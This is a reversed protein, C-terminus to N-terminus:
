LLAAVPRRQRRGRRGRRLRLDSRSGLCLLYQAGSNGYINKAVKFWVSYTYNKPQYLAAPTGFTVYDHHRRLAAGGGTYGGVWRPDRGPSGHYGHGSWDTSTRAPGKMSRGGPSFIPTPSPSTPCPGSAGSRRREPTGTPPFEDVRWYYTTDAKLLGPDYKADTVMLGGTAANGVAEFSEGFYVTHFVGGRREALDLDQNLDVYQVGDAPSPSWAIVPQVSFSWVDGELSQRSQAPNVEDVRWYYTKGPVLGAPIPAARPASRCAITPRPASSCPRADATTAAVAPTRASTCTHSAALQGPRWELTVQGPAVLSGNQPLRLSPTSYPKDGHRARIEPGTLAHSYVRVDDIAGTYWENWQDNRDPFTGHRRQRASAALRSTENGNLYFVAGGAQGPQFTVAVHQWTKTELRHEHRYSRPRRPDHVAPNHWLVKFM